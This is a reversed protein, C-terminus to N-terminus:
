SQPANLKGETVAAQAVIALRRYLVVLKQDDSDYGKAEEELIDKQLGVMENLYKNGEKLNM